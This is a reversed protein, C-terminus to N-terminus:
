QASLDNVEDFKEEIKAVSRIIGAYDGDEMGEALSLYASFSNSNLSSFPIEEL